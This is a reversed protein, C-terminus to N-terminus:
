LLRSRAARPITWRSSFERSPPRDIGTSSPESFKPLVLTRQFRTQEETYGRAGRRQPQKTPFTSFVALPTRHPALFLEQLMPRLHTYEVPPNTWDSKEIFVKIKGEWRRFRLRLSVLQTAIRSFLICRRNRLHWGSVRERRQSNGGVERFNYYRIM